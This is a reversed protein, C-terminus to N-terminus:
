TVHWDIRRRLRGDEGARRRRHRLVMTGRRHPAWDECEAGPRSCTPRAPRPWWAGTTTPSRRGRRLGGPTGGLDGPLHLHAHGRSAGPGPLEGEDRCQRLLGQEGKAWTVTAAGMASDCCAALFGGQLVGVPNTFREDAPMQWVTTGPESKDVCVMGLTLDCNPPVQVQPDAVAIGYSERACGVFRGARRWGRRRGRHRESAVVTPPRWRASPRRPGDGPGLDHDLVSAITSTRGARPAPARRPGPGPSRRGGPSRSRRRRRPRRWRRRSPCGRGARSAWPTVVHHGVRTCPEARRGPPRGPASRRPAARGGAPGDRWRRRGGRLATGPRAPACAGLGHAAATSAPAPEPREPGAHADDGQGGLQGPGEVGDAGQAAAAHEHREPWEAQVRRSRGRRRGIGPGPQTVWRPLAM